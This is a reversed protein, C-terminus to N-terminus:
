LVRAISDRVLNEFLRGGSSTVAERVARRTVKIQREPIPTFPSTGDFLEVYSYGGVTTIVLVDASPNGKYFDEVYDDDVGSGSYVVLAERGNLDTLSLYTGDDSVEVPTRLYAGWAGANRSWVHYTDEASDDPLEALGVRHVALQGGHGDHPKRDYWGEGTMVRVIRERTIDTGIRNFDDVAITVERRGGDKANLLIVAEATTGSGGFFDLVKADRGGIADFWEALVLHDKPHQFTKPGLVAKLHKNADTRTKDIVNNLVEGTYNFRRKKIQTTHDAGFEVEGSEIMRKMSWDPYAYGRSPTVCVEGTVPHVVDYFHGVGAEPKSVDGNGTYLRGQADFRDFTRLASSAGKFESRVVKAFEKRAAERRADIDSVESTRSWVDNAAAFYRPADADMRRWRGKRKLANANKTYVLMYDTSSSIFQASSHKGANWTVQEIFNDEGFIADLMLRLRANEQHGIAVMLVGDDKLLDYAIRLRPEMFSLWKTHRYTANEDLFRDNYVMDQRGTNYPPDIYIIDYVGTHTDSHTAAAARLGALAHFNDGILLRHVVSGDNPLYSLEPSFTISPLKNVMELVPNDPTFKYTLPRQSILEDADEVVRALLLRLEDEPVGALDSARLTMGYREKRFTVTTKQVM